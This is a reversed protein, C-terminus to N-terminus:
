DELGAWIEPWRKAFDLLAQAADADPSGSAGAIAACYATWWYDSKTNPM